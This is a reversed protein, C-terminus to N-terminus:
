TYFLADGISYPAWSKRDNVFVAIGAPPDKMDVKVPQLILFLGYPRAHFIHQVTAAKAQHFPRIARRVNEGLARYMNPELDRVAIRTFNGASTFVL